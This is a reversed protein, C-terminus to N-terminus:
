ARGGAPPPSYGRELLHNGHSDNWTPSASMEKRQEPNRWAPRSNPLPRCSTCPLPRSPTSPTRVCDERWPSSFSAWASNSINLAVCISSIFDRKTRIAAKRLGRTFIPSADLALLRAIIGNLPEFLFDVHLAGFLVRSNDRDAKGAAIRLFGGGQDVGDHIGIHIFHDLRDGSGDGFAKPDGSSRRRSPFRPGRWALLISVPVRSYRRPSSRVLPGRPGTRANSRYMSMELSNWLMRDSCRSRARRARM